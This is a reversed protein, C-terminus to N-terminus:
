VQIGPPVYTGQRGREDARGAFYGLMLITGLCQNASAIGIEDLLMRAYTLHEPQVDLYDRKVYAGREGFM